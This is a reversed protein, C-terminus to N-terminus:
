SDIVSIIKLIHTERTYTTSSIKYATGCNPWVPAYNLQAVSILYAYATILPVIMELYKSLNRHIFLWKFINGFCALHSRLHDLIRLGRQPLKRREGLGGLRSRSRASPARVEAGAAGWLQVGLKKPVFRVRSSPKLVVYNASTIECLNVRMLRSPWVAILTFELTASLTM